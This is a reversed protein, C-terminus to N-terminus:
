LFAVKQQVQANLWEQFLENLLRQRTSLDLQAPLYKELRIIIWWDGIRTPPWLQGLKSATLMQAIQPHPINLEVPGILGGTQAEPGQSYQQALEFFSNESEQIRFYLEQAIGADQTRILSYVVRDLQGKCQLFYSELKNEWSAQKFKELKLDRLALEDLQELTMSNQSLWAKLQDETAIGYRQYFAQRAKEQEEATCEVEALARDIIMERALQPLLRYKGLLPLLDESTVIQEGIKFVASTKSTEQVTYNGM